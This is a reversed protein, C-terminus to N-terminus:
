QLDRIKGQCNLRRCVVEGLTVFMGKTTLKGVAFPGEKDIGSEFYMTPKAVSIGLRPQGFGEPDSTDLAYIRSLTDKLVDKSKLLPVGYITAVPMGAPFGDSTEIGNVGVKITTKGLVNYEIKNEYIGVIKSYTDYGTLLVTTNAGREGLNNIATRILEDTLNRAVGANHDIYADAWTAGTHRDLGYIDVDTVVSMLAAEPQGSCIRDLSEMKNGAPTDCTLLLQQNIAERHKAALTMRLYALDGVADDVKTLYEQVMSNEFVHAVTKPKTAIEQWAPKISDPIVGAEAVDGDASAGARTTQVRWGSRNWVMKPLLGFANAEQNIQAWVQAGYIPNYVGSTTTIVPADVKQIYRQGGALTGYYYEMMDQITRIIQPM